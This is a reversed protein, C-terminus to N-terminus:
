HYRFKWCKNLKGTEATFGTDIMLADKYLHM